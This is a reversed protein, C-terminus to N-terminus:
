QDTQNQGANQRERGGGRKCMTSSATAMTSTTTPMTSALEIAPLLNARTKIFMLSEAASEIAGQWRYISHINDVINVCAALQEAVLATAIRRAEEPSGATSFAVVLEANSNDAM